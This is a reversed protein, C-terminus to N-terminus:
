EDDRLQFQGSSSTFLLNITKRDNGEYYPYSRYKYKYVLMLLKWSVAHCIASHQSFKDLVTKIIEV